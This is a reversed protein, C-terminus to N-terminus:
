VIMAKREISQFTRGLSEIQPDIRDADGIEVIIVHDEEREILGELAAAMQAHRRATLRCQFVSLQLWQGYGKMLKFVRRWRKQSGIDYAVIYLRESPM